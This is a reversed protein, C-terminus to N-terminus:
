EALVKRISVPLMRVGSATADGKCERVARAWEDGAIRALARANLIDGHSEKADFAELTLELYRALKADRLRRQATTTM